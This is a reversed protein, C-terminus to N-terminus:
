LDYVINIKKLKKVVLVKKETSEVESPRKSFYFGQGFQMRTESMFYSYEICAM